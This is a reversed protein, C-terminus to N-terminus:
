FLDNKQIDEVVNLALASRFHTILNVGCLAGLLGIHMTNCQGTQLLLGMAMGLAVGGTARKILENNKLQEDVQDLKSKAEEVQKRMFYLVQRENELTNKIKGIQGSAYYIWILSNKKEYRLVFSDKAEKTEVYCKM